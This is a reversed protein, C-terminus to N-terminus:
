TPVVDIRRGSTEVLRAIDGPDSTIIIDEHNALVVVAADVVDSTGSATLLLGAQRGLEVTLAIGDVAQLARALLVQRGTGGRWVQGVVGGHTIPPEGDILAGKLRRWMARDNRELAVFAGADLVM